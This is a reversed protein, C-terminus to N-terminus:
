LSQNNIELGFMGAHQTVWALWSNYTNNVPKECLKNTIYLNDIYKIKESTYQIDDTYKLDISYEQKKDVPIMWIDFNHCTMPYYMDVRLSVEKDLIHIKVGGFDLQVTCNHPQVGILYRKNQIRVTKAKAKAKAEMVRVHPMNTHTDIVCVRKRDHLIETLKEIKRALEENTEQLLAEM